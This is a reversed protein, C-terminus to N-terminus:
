VGGFMKDFCNGCIGSMLLERDNASLHPFADQIHMGAKRMELQQKTVELKYEKKCSKCETIIRRLDKTNATKPTTGFGNPQYGTQKNIEMGEKHEYPYMMGLTHTKGCDPCDHIFIVEGYIVTGDAEKFVVPVGCDECKYEVMGNREIENNM